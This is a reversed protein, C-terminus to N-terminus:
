LEAGKEYLYMEWVFYTTHKWEKNKQRCYQIAKEKDQTLQMTTAKIACDMRYCPVGKKAADKYENSLAMQIIFVKEM